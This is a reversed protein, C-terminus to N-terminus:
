VTVQVFAVTPTNAAFPPLLVTVNVTDTPGLAIEEGVFKVTVFEALTESGPSEFVVSLVNVSAGVFRALAIGVTDAIEGASPRM